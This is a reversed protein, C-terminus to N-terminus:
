GGVERAREAARAVDVHRPAPRLPDGTEIVNLAPCFRYRAIAAEMGLLAEGAADATEAARAREVSGRWLDRLRAQRVNGLTASRWQICPFVNGEPDVALTIRGLGCAPRGRGPESPQLQGAERLKSMLRDIAPASAALSLPSLDGGDRPALLPDLRLEVDLSRALAVLGDLESENLRTLPTKLLLPIGRDKLLGLGRMMADFSGACGTTLDHVGASSGHLSLEVTSVGLRSLEDAIRADVLSGNTFIRTALARSRVSRVIELFDPHALPEGGTLTVWLTGLSRLDDLVEAWEAARLTREDPKRANSCFACRWNCRRTLELHVSLPQELELARAKLDGLGRSRGAVTM